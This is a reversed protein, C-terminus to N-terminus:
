TKGEERKLAMERWDSLRPMLCEIHCHKRNVLLLSHRYAEETQTTVHFFSVQFTVREYNFLRVRYSYPSEVGSSIEQM